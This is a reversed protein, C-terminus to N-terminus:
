YSIECVPIPEFENPIEPVERQNFHVRSSTPQCFHAPCHYLFKYGNQEETTKM